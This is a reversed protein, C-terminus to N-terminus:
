KNWGRRNLRNAGAFGGSYLPISGGGGNGTAGIGRLSYADDSSLSFTVETCPINDGAKGWSGLEGSADYDFYGSTTYSGIHDGTMVDLDIVLEHYGAAYTGAIAENDRTSLVNGGEGIFTAIELNNLTSTVYIQAETLRGDGDAPYGKDVM